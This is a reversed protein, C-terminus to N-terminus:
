SFNTDVLISDSTGKEDGDAGSFISSIKGIRNQFAQILDTQLFIRQCSVDPRMQLAHISFDIVAIKPKTLHFEITKKSSDDVQLTMGIKRFRENEM